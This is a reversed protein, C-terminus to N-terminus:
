FVIEKGITLIRYSQNARILDSLGKKRLEENSMRVKLGKISDSGLQAKSMLITEIQGLAGFIIPDNTTGTPMATLYSYTESNNLLARTQHLGNQLTRMM